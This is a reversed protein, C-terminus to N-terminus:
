PSAADDAGRAAWFAAVKHNPGLIERRDPYLIYVVWKRALEEIRQRGRATDRTVYAKIVEEGHRGMQVDFVVGIKDPRDANKFAGQLWACQFSACPAPRDAYIACGRHCTHSCRTFMPKEIDPVGHTTCCENCGRCRRTTM